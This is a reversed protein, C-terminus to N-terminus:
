QLPTMTPLTTPELISTHARNELINGNRADILISKNFYTVDWKPIDTQSDNRDLYDLQIFALIEVPQDTEGDAVAQQQLALEARYQDYLDLPNIQIQAILAKRAPLDELSGLFIKIWEADMEKYDENGDNTDDDYYVKIEDKDIIKVLRLDVIREMEPNIYTYQIVYEYKGYPSLDDLAIKFLEYREKVGAHQKAFVLQEQFSLSRFQSAVIPEPRRDAFRSASLAIICIGVFCLYLL